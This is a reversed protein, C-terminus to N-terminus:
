LYDKLNYFYNESDLAVISAYGGGEDIDNVGCNHLSVINNLGEVKGQTNVNSLINSLTSYEVSGDEMLFVILSGSIDQGITGIQANIVKKSFGTIKSYEGVKAHINNKDIDMATAVNELSPNNTNEISIYANGDKIKISIVPLNGDVINDFSYEMGQTKNKETATFISPIIKESNEIKSQEDEDEINSADDKEETKASYTSKLNNLEEELENIKENSNYLLFSSCLVLIVIILIVTLLNIKM